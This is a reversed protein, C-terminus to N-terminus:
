WRYGSDCISIMQVPRGRQLLEGYCAIKGVDTEIADDCGGTNIEGKNNISATGSIYVHRRDAFDVATGREFTVGYDHTRNLHTPAHLYTVQDQKIGEIAYADMSVLANPDAQRGEIATSAIYHTERNLGEREFAAARAKVMGM